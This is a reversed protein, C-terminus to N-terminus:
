QENAPWDCSMTTQAGNDAIVCQVQRGDPTQMVRYHYKGVDSHESFDVYSRTDDQWAHHRDHIVMVTVTIVLALMIAVLTRGIIRWTKESM